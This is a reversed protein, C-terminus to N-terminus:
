AVVKRKNLNRRFWFLLITGAVITLSGIYKIWRGPDYNVSLVSATPKGMEDQEFSAQYFTFGGFKLPENMSITVLDKGPVEVDSEYSAARQTGEYHGVRFDKLTLAFDLPIRKHGYSVIYMRDSSYLRLLSNLGIWHTEGHFRIQIASQAIPSPGSPTYTVLEKGKPLLRLIRFKLGMWGTELSESQRIMGRQSLLNKSYIAYRLVEPAPGPSLVIENKGSEPKYSGDSLIVQAPGLNLSVYSKRTERRLWETVNVKSNEIQFRVAPGDMPKDSPLIEAHRFAYHEYDIVEIQDSGIPIALPAEKPPNRLFNVQREFVPRVNNGDLTAYVLLDREKITVFKQPQGPELILTGDVGEIQTFLAGGLTLIIGVHAMIFGIHKKEWPWRDLMVAVLMVCLLGLIGYMYPSRYVLQQAVEGDYRAETITGVACIVAMALIVPIALRISSLFSLFKPLM